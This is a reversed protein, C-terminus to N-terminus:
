GMKGKIAAKITQIPLFLTLPLSQLAVFGFRSYFRAAAEDKADVFMGSIGIFDASHATQKMALALLQSGLGKGQESKAVALRGLRVAPLKRPFKKGVSSPLHSSDGECVCLSFYGLIPKPVEAESKVLVFTRSIGRKLHQNAIRAIFENLPVSGCDFSARDHTGDLLELKAM